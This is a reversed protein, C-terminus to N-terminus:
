APLLFTSKEPYFHDELSRRSLISPNSFASASGSELLWSNSGDVGDIAVLSSLDGMLDSHHSLYKYRPRNSWAPAPGHALAARVIQGDSLPYAKHPVLVLTQFWNQLHVSCSCPIAQHAKLSGPGDSLLCV